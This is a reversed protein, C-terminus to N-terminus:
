ATAIVKWVCQSTIFSVCWTTEMSRFLLMVDNRYAAPIHNVEHLNVVALTAPRPSYSGGQGPFHLQISPIGGKYARLLELREPNKLVM